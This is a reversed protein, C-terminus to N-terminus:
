ERHGDASIAESDFRRCFDGATTPDPIARAGLADLFAADNRRLEIDDLVQGGCLLNYAINLVHDSDQYPRARKLIGLQTDIQQPLGVRRVLHHIAAIGGCAIAHARGAIEYTPRPGNFEPQGQQRPETGGILPALRELIKRKGRQLQRRLKPKV